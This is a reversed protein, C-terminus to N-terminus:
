TNWAATHPPDNSMRHESKRASGKVHYYKVFGDGGVTDDYAM